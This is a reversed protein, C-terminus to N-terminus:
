GEAKRGRATRGITSILVAAVVLHLTALGVRGSMALDTGGFPGGMSAILGVMALITWVRRPHRTVKEALALAAWAALGAFLSVFTVSGPGVDYSAGQSMVPTVLDLGIAEIIFYAAIAAGVAAAVGRARAARTNSVVNTSTISLSM